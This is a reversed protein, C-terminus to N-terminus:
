GVSQGSAAKGIASMRGQHTIRNEIVRQQGMTALALSNGNNYTKYSRDREVANVARRLRKYSGTEQSLRLVRNLQAQM